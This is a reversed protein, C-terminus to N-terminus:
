ESRTDDLVIEEVYGDPAAGATARLSVFGGPASDSLVFALELGAFVGLEEAHPDGEFPRLAVETAPLNAGRHSAGVPRTERRFQMAKRIQKRLYFPNGGSAESLRAVVFDIFILAIPNGTTGRFEALRRAAAGAEITAGVGSPGALREILLTRDVAERGVAGQGGVRHRYALAGGQPLPKGAPTSLLRDLPEAAAPTVAMAMFLVLPILLRM